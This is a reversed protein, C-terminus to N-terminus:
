VVELVGNVFICWDFVCYLIIIEEFEVIFCVFYEGVIFGGCFLVFGIMGIECLGMLGEWSWIVVEEFFIGWKKVVVRGLMVVMGLFVDVKMKYYIESIEIDWDCVLLVVVQVVLVEVVVVGLLFNSVYFVFICQVVVVLMEEQQSMMGIVGIVFVLGGLLVLWQVVVIMVVFLSFDIVFDVNEVVDELYIEVVVGILCCELIEGIDYGVFFFELCVMVGVLQCDLSDLIVAMIVCGFWGIFGLIVICILCVM